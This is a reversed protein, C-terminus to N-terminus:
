GLSEITVKGDSNNNQIIILIKLVRIGIDAFALFEKETVTYSVSHVINNRFIWFQRLLKTLELDILGKERLTEILVSVALPRKERTKLAMEYIARLTKEIDISIKLIETPLDNTITYDFEYPDKNGSLGAFKLEQETITREVGETKKNLEELEVEVNGVKIKKARDGINNLLGKIRKYFLLIIILVTLPWILDSILKCDCFNTLCHDCDESKSIEIITQHNTTTDKALVITDAKLIIKTTDMTQQLNTKTTQEKTNYIDGLFNGIVDSHSFVIRL